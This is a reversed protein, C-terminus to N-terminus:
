RSRKVNNLDFTHYMLVTSDSTVSASKILIYLIYYSYLNHQLQSGATAIAM